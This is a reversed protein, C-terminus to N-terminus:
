DDGAELSTCESGNYYCGPNPCVADNYDASGSVRTTGSGSDTKFTKITYILGTEVPPACENGASSATNKEYRKRLNLYTPYLQDVDVYQFNANRAIDIFQKTVYKPPAPCKSPLLRPDTKMLDEFKMFPDDVAFDNCKALFYVKDMFDCGYAAQSASYDLTKAANGLFKHGFNTSIYSEVGLTVLNKIATTMRDAPFSVNIPVSPIPTKNIIGAGYGGKLPVSPGGGFITGVGPISGLGPISSMIGKLAPFDGLLKALDSPKLAGLVSGLLQESMNCLLSKLKDNTLKSMLNAVKDLPLKEMLKALQKGDMLNALSELKEPPIKDILKDMHGALYSDGAQLAKLLDKTPIQDMLKGIAEDDLFENAQKLFDSLQEGGLKDTLKTIRDPSLKGMFKQFAPGDMKKALNDLDNGELEDVLKNGDAWEMFEDIEEPDKSGLFSGLKDPSLKDAIKGMKDAPLHKSVANFQSGSMKTVVSELKGDPIKKMISAMKEPPIKDTLKELQDPPLNEMLTGVEDGTMNELMGTAEDPTMKGFNNLGTLLQQGTAASPNASVVALASPPLALIGTKIENQKGTPLSNFIATQQSAPLQGMGMAITSSSLNATIDPDRLMSAIQGPALTQIQSQIAQNAMSRVTAEPLQSILKPNKLIDTVNGFPMVGLQENILDEAMSQPLNKLLNPNELIDLAGGPVYNKMQEKLVDGLMEEGIDRVLDIDPDNVDAALLAAIDVPAMTFLKDQIIERPLNHLADPDKLLAQFDLGTMENIKEKIVSAPYKALKEPDKLVDLFEGIGLNDIQDQLADEALEGLICSEDGGGGALPSPKAAWRKSASFINTARKGAELAQASFCTYEFVSDPKRINAEIMVYQRKSELFARSYIQNMFDADCACNDVDQDLCNTADIKNSNPNASNQAQVDGAPLFISFACLGLILFKLKRM